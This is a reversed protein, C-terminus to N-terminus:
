SLADERMTNFSPFPVAEQAKTPPRASIECLLHHQKRSSHAYVRPNVFFHRWKSLSLVSHCYLILTLLSSPCAAFTIEHQLTLVIQASFKFRISVELSAPDGVISPTARGRGHLHRTNPSASKGAVECM